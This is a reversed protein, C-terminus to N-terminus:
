HALQHPHVAINRGVDTEGKAAKMLATAPRPPTIDTPTASVRASTLGQAMAAGEQRVSRVAYDYARDNELRPDILTTVRKMKASPGLILIYGDSDFAYQDEPLWEQLAERLTCTKSFTILKNTETGGLYWM